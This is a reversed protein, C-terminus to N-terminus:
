QRGVIKIEPELEIGFKEMVTNKTYDLLAMVDAATAGGTNIIFGCHKESIQAGGIKHGALGADQVLKGAFHGPPRKFASGASPYELPQKEKRRGNFDNIKTLIETRNGPMLAFAAGAIIMGNKQVACQRYAFDMEDLGMTILEGAPNIVEARLFVQAMEGGYAGANMFVGGGVTGPIGDAFELGALERSLAFRALEKMTLGAQAHIEGDAFGIGRLAKTSVVCGGIGGDSVLLNSGNGMVLLDIGNEHCSSVVFALQGITEPMVFIDARGGIKFSTHRRMPENLRMMGEGLQEGLIKIMNITM